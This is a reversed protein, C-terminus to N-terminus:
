YPLNDLATDIAAVDAGQNMWNYGEYDVFVDGEEDERLLHLSCLRELLEPYVWRVVLGNPSASQIANAAATADLSPLVPAAVPEAAFCWECDQISHMTCKAASTDSM